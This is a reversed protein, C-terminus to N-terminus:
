EYKKRKVMETGFIVDNGAVIKEISGYGRFEYGQRLLETVRANYTKVSDAGLTSVVFEYDTYRTEDCM